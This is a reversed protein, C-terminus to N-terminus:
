KPGVCATDAADLGPHRAVERERGLARPRNGVAHEPVARELRGGQAVHLQGTGVEVRAAVQRQALHNVEVQPAAIERDGVRLAPVRMDDFRSLLRERKPGVGVPASRTVM